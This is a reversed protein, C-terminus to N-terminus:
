TKIFFWSLLLVMSLPLVLQKGTIQNNGTLLKWATLYEKNSILSADTGNELYVLAKAVKIITDKDSNIKDAPAIASKIASTYNSVINSAAGTYDAAFLYPNGGTRKATTIIQKYLARLGWESSIFQEHILSTNNKVEGKWNISSILINGANNNRLGATLHTKNLRSTM